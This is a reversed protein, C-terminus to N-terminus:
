GSAGPAAFFILSKEIAPKISTVADGIKRGGGSPRHKRFVDERVQMLDYLRAPDNTM